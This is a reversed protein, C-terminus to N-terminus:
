IFVDFVCVMEAKKALGKHINERSLLSGTIASPKLACGIRYPLAKIM